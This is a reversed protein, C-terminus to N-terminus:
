CAIQKVKSIFVYTIKTVLCQVALNGCHDIVNEAGHKASVTTTQLHVTLVPSLFLSDFHYVKESLVHIM